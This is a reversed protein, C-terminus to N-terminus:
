GSWVTPASRALKWPSQPATGAARPSGSDCRCSITSRPGTCRATSSASGVGGASRAGFSSSTSRRLGGTRRSHALSELEEQVAERVEPRLAARLKDVVSLHAPGLPSGEASGLAQLGLLVVHAEAPTLHLPPMWYDDPLEYGGGPGPLAVIPVGVQSLGDIDRLITRRSVEFRDALQQATRRDTRLALVIGALRDTRNM